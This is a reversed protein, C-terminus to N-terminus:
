LVENVGLPDPTRIGARGGYKWIDPGSVYTVSQTDSNTKLTKPHAVPQLPTATHPEQGRMWLCACRLWYGFLLVSSATIVVTTILEVM